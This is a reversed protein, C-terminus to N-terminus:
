PTVWGLLERRTTETRRGEGEGGGERGGEGGERGGEVGGEGGREGGGRGGGEGGRGKRTPVLRILRPQGHTDRSGWLGDCLTLCYFMCTAEATHQGAAGSNLM